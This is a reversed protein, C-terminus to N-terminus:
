HSKVVGKGLKFAYALKLKNNSQNTWMWCFEQESAAQFIRKGEPKGKIQVPYLIKEGIHYHINFDVPTESKYLYVVRQGPQMKFCEEHFSRPFLIIQYLPVKDGQASSASLPLITLLLLFIKKM